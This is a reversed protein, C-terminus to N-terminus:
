EDDDIQQENEWNEPTSLLSLISRNILARLSKPNSNSSFSNSNTSDSNISNFTNSCSSNSNCFNSNSSKKFEVIQSGEDTITHPINTRKHWPYSNPYIIPPFYTGTPRIRTTTTSIKPPFQVISYGKLIQAGSTSSPIISNNQQFTSINPSLSSSCKSRKSPISYDQLPQLCTQIDKTPFGLIKRKNQEIRHAELIKLSDELKPILPNLSYQQQQQNQRKQIITTDRQQTSSEKNEEWPRHFQISVQPENM